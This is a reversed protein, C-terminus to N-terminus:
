RGPHLAVPGPVPPPRQPCRDAPAAHGSLHEDQLHHDDQQEDYGRHHCQHELYPVVAGHLGAVAGDGHCLGEGVRRAGQLGQLAGVRRRHELRAGLRGAPRRVHVEDDDHVGVPDAVGVGLRVPDALLEDPVDAGRQGPAHGGLVDGAGDAREDLGDDRDLVGVALDHAQDGRADGGGLHAAGGVLLQRQEQHGGGHSEGEGRAAGVEDASTQQALRVTQARVLHGAHVLVVVRDQVGYPLAHQDDAALAPQQEGVVLRVPEEVQRGVGLSPVDEVEVQGGVDRAQQGGSPDGGVLHVPDPVPEERDVLPGGVDLAARGAADGGQAVGGLQTGQGPTGLDGTLAQVHQVVGRHADAGAQVHGTGGLLQGLQGHRPERVEDGHVQEVRHEAAALRLLRGGQAAGREAPDALVGRQVLDALANGQDVGSRLGPADAAALGDQLRPEGLGGAPVRLVRLAGGLDHLVADVRQDGDGQPGAVEHEARDAEPARLLRLGEVGLLDGEGLLEDRPGRDGDVVGAAVGALVGHRHRELATQQRAPQGLLVGQVDGVLVQGRLRPHAAVPEVYQRQGTGPDRQHDTVHHPVPQVRRGGHAPQAGRHVVEGGQIQRGVFQQGQQVLQHGPDVLVLRLLAAVGRHGARGAQVGHVVRDGPPARDGARAM